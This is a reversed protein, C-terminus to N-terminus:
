HVKVSNSTKIKQKSIFTTKNSILRMTCCGGGATNSSHSSSYSRKKTTYTNNYKTTEVLLLKSAVPVVRVDKMDDQQIERRNQKIGFFRNRSKMGFEKMPITTSTTTNTTTTSTTKTSTM